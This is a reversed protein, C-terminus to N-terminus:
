TSKPVFAALQVVFDSMAQLVPQYDVSHQELQQLAYCSAELTSLQNESHAKRITYISAPTQTLSLLPLQQLLPNLYLMKRSKRWTADIVILRLQEASYDALEPTAPPPTIGLSHYDALPPYLLLPQRGNAYILQQLQLEDFQEGTYIQSNKLSLQLLVATNKANPTEEPHQLILLEVRNNVQHIFACFCTRTPRQCHSCTTRQSPESNM